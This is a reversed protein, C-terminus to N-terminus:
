IIGRSYVLYKLDERERWPRSFELVDLTAYPDPHFGHLDLACLDEVEIYPELKVVMILKSIDNVRFTNIYTLIFTNLLIRFIDRKIATFIGKRYWIAEIFILNPETSSYSAILMGTTLRGLKIRVPKLFGKQIGIVPIKVGIKHLLYLCWLTNLM